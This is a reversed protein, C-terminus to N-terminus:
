VSKTPLEPWPFAFRNRYYQNYLYKLDAQWEAIAVSFSGEQRRAANRTFAALSEALKSLRKGTNPTGWEQMYSPGNLPPLESLFVTDLIARRSSQELGQTTGVHYGLFALMGEPRWSKPDVNGIGMPADTSPWPFHEPDLASDHNRSTWERIIADRLEIALPSTERDNRGALHPVLKAWISQIECLSRRPLAEITGPVHRGYRARFSNLKPRPKAVSAM